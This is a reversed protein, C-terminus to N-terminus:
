FGKGLGTTRFVIWQYDPCELALLLIQKVLTVGTSDALFIVAKPLEEDQGVDQSQISSSPSKRVVRLDDIIQKAKRRLCSGDLWDSEDISWAHSSVIASPFFIELLDLYRDFGADKRPDVKELGQIHVIRLAM